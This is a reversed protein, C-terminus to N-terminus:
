GAVGAKVRYAARVWEDATHIEPHVQMARQLWREADHRSDGWAILVELADRQAQSLRVAEAGSAAAAPWALDNMKGKLTAVIMEAARPGIGPLRALAKADGQEIWTAIQRVPEALAKLAKRPGIGKVELFRSFFLRDEVHLFGLLRPVLHGSAQNGEYFESTHLTIERGRCAALEGVACHPVHVERAVGDREVVVTEETVELLTGTLRVIM